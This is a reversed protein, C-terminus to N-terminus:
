EYPVGIYDLIEGVGLKNICYNWIKPHTKKMCQFKNPEQERHVGFMCFMCGTYGYGKDYISSYDLDFKNIYEWIDNTSWYSMPKSIPRNTDFVNCSNRKLHQLRYISDSGMTGIMPNNGTKKEYKKIPNKKLKDCCKDSVEFDAELLCKWKEPIKGSKFKNDAGHMRKYRLKESKTNRAEYIQKSVEKSVVPFGFKKIVKPFPIDPKVWVVNDIKKVFERIEPYELGTDIFVAPVEPYLYRTLDLLVTSDKGGSFSIYIQGDWSEYWEKIRNLSLDIKEDLSMEQREKIIERTLSM